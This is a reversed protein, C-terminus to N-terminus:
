ASQESSQNVYGMRELAAINSAFEKESVSHCGCTTHSPNWCTFMHREGDWFHTFSGVPNSQPANNM